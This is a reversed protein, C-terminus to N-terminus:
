QLRATTPQVFLLIAGLQFDAWAISSNTIQNPSYSIFIQISEGSTQFYVPHWLREQFSELPIDPYAFTELVGTGMIAGTGTGAQLMSLTTYSPYYDVTVQGLATKDIYFDIKALYVNRGKDVYPNWQKSYIGLNSVRAITGGGLYDGVIDPAIIVFTDATPAPDSVVQYIVQTLTIGSPNEIAVYDGVMLTHDVVTLTVQGTTADIAMNTIQLSPANRSVDPSVIFLFGEQNGAIIQRFNAQVTGENWAFNSQEWTTNSSAWTTGIQQEFYGFATICDDNISWTGNRYNYVLVKDPYVYFSDEEQNQPYSWYVMETFFDRIGAVRETASNEDEIKFIQDPIKEDIRIVNAGSCAHVGTNGVTLIQKDFVVSSLMADSGLETNIKQWVFPQLENGTYALEWTSREFYVILRDKIFQASIIQEETAADIYSGGDAFTGGTTQNPELWANTALPSGNHSFRCRQPFASNTGSTTEITNLLVLRGKYPLIIRCTQVFTGDTRVIISPSFDVWTSGNFYWIPDDTGTPTGNPNAVQFNTVFLVIINVTLGQWNTAWFFNLNDGHWIPDGNASRQWFGGAFIYVFQTDFAYTPHNNIAGTEYQTIGMVPLAPYFWVATTAITTQGGTIRFQYVNPGTSNLRVTGIAPGGPGQDTSLTAANGVVSPVTTVTFIINGASFAAGPNLITGPLSTFVLNGSGDTTGVRVRLRSFLPATQASDSGVGMLVSGFRKRLRGRFVYANNLQAFADDPIIWPRLDTQLGTNLPAILFRDFPM